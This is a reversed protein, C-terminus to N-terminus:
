QVAKLLSEQHKGKASAIGPKDIGATWKAVLNSDFVDNVALFGIRQGKVNAVYPAYAEAADEGIGLIPMKKRRKVDLTAALGDLGYDMGHNNAMTVVDVGAHSLADVVSEPAQFNFTKAEPSGGSGVATELNVMALDAQSLLPAIARLLGAPDATASPGLGQFSADGGFAITVSEGSGLPGREATTEPSEANATGAKKSDEPDSRTVGKSPGEPKEEVSEKPEPDASKKEAAGRFGCASLALSALLLHAAFTRLTNRHM